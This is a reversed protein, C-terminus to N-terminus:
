GSRPCAPSHSSYSAPFLGHSRDFSASQSIHSSHCPIRSTTTSSFARSTAQPHRRGTDARSPLCEAKGACRLTRQGLTPLSFRRDASLSPLIGERWLGAALNLLLSRHKCFRRYREIFPHLKAPLVPHRLRPAKKGRADLRPCKRRERDRLAEVIRWRVKQSIASRAIMAAARKAIVALLKARFGDGVLRRVAVAARVVGRGNEVLGDEVLAVWALSRRAFRLMERTACKALPLARQRPFGSGAEKAFQVVVHGAAGDVARSM